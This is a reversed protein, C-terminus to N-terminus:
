RDSPSLREPLRSVSVMSPRLIRDKYKYGKQFEGLVTEDPHENTEVVHIAHHLSPDFTGSMSKIEEVGLRELTGKLQNGIMELGKKITQPDGSKDAADNAREISDLVPFFEAIVNEAAYKRIDELKKDQRITFNQFEASIRRVQEELEAIRKDKAKLEEKIIGPKMEGRGKRISEASDKDLVEIKVPKGTKRKSLIKVPIDVTRLRDPKEKMVAKRKKHTL